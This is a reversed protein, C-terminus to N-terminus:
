YKSTSSSSNSSSSSTDVLGSFPTEMDSVAFVNGIWKGRKDTSDELRPRKGLLRDWARQREMTPPPEEGLVELSTRPSTTTTPARSSGKSRAVEAREAPANGREQRSVLGATTASKFITSRAAEASARTTGQKTTEDTKLLSAMQQQSSSPAKMDAVNGRTLLSALESSAAGGGAADAQMKSLFQQQTLFRGMSSPSLGGGGGATPMNATRHLLHEQQVSLSSSHAHHTGLGPAGPVPVSKMGPPSTTPISQAASYGHSNSITTAGAGVPPISSTSTYSPEGSDGAGPPHHEHKMINSSPLYGRVTGGMLLGELRPLPPGSSSSVSSFVDVAGGATISPATAAGGARGQQHQPSGGPHTGSGVAAYSSTPFDDPEAPENRGIRRLHAPNRIETHHHGNRFNRKAIGDKCEACYRFRIGAKRCDQFSCILGEGHETGDTIEFYASQENWAVFCYYPSSLLLSTTSSSSPRCLSSPSFFLLVLVETAGYGDRTMAKPAITSVM